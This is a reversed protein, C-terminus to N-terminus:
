DPENVVSGRHSSRRPQKSTKRRLRKAPDLALSVWLKQNRRKKERM